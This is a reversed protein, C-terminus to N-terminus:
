RAELLPRLHEELFRWSGIGIARAATEDPHRDGAIRFGGFAAGLEATVDPEIDRYPVGLGAFFRPAIVKFAITAEVHGRRLKGGDAPPHDPKGTTLVLLRVGRRRCWDHLRTFLARGLMQARADRDPDRGVRPTPPDGDESSGAAGTASSGCADQTRREQHARVFARRLFQVLHSHGLLWDYGPMHTLARGLALPDRVPVERRLKATAVDELVFLGDKLSRGLDWYNLYVVVARPDLAAARDEVFAVMDDTGWGGAAGNLIQMRGAGFARDAARQLFHVYTDDEHLLWGFTFSDGLVLVKCADDRVPAGRLGHENIRYTVDRDGFRHRATIGPLNTTYGEPTPLRWRGTLSQPAFLRVAGEALLASGALVM